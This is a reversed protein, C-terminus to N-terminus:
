PAFLVMFTGWARFEVDHRSHGLAQTLRELLNSSRAQVPEGDLFRGLDDALAAASPYRRGLEKERGKLCIRELDRPMKPRVQRAPVARHNRGQELTELGTAGPLPPRGTLTEYLIGGLAYVDAAPGGEHGKGQGEEPAMYSPTGLVGGPQTQGAE